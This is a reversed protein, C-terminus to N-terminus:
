FPLNDARDCRAERDCEPTQFCAGTMTQAQKASIKNQHMSDTIRQSCANFNAMCQANDSKGRKIATALGLIERQPDTLAGTSMLYSSFRQNEKVLVDKLWFDVFGSLKQETVGKCYAAYLENDTPSGQGLAAVASTGIFCIVGWFAARGRIGM